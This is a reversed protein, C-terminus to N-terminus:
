RPPRDWSGPDPEGALDALLAYERAAMAGFDLSIMAQSLTRGVVDAESRAALCSTLRAGAKPISARQARKMLILAEVEQVGELLMQGRTTRVTGRPGAATLAPVHGRWLWGEKPPSRYYSRRRGRDDTYIPWFDLGIRALTGSTRMAVRYSLPSSDNHIETRQVQAVLFKRPEIEVDPWHREFEPLGGGNPNIRFGVELGGQAVLVGDEPAPERVWHAYIQWRMGPQIKEFFDVVPQLPRSDFAEGLLLFDPDIGRKEVIARAGDIMTTWFAESGPRGFHPAEMPTMKGTAPDLATVMCPEVKDSKMGRFWTRCGFAHKWLSLTVVKPRGFVRTHLDLYREFASFDPELKAGRRVWRIMGTQHHLYNDLIVPVFVVDGGMAAMTRMSQEILAFHRDSWPEVGFHEALTDPSQYLSVLTANAQPDTLTWGAVLVQVPVEWAKAGVRVVLTGTYWGPPQNRPVDVLVWVPVVAAGEPPAPLLANCFSENEGQAAYAVRVADAPLVADGGDLRLPALTAHLGELAKPGRVVVQGSCVGGRPAIARIPRLPEFPNGGPLGAPTVTVGWWLFGARHRGPTAAITDLPTANTVTVDELPKAYPIVGGAGTGTLSVGCLGATSWETKRGFRMGKLPARHFTLALTNPGKRLVDAPVRVSVRRIRGEYRERHEEAPRAESRLPNGEPDVFVEKPYADARTEPGLPGEPLHRRAIERGNVYVVVGGRYELALTLVGVRRPDAVGFQTRLGLMTADPSQDFGYGGVAATLGPGYRGWGSDDFDAATWGEPPSVTYTPPERRHKDQRSCVLFVRWPTDETVAQTRRPSAPEAARAAPVLLFVLLLVLSTRM